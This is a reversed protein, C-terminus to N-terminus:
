MYAVKHPMPPRSIGFSGVWAKRVFRMAHFLHLSKEQARQEGGRVPQGILRRQQQQAGGSVPNTGSAPETGGIADEYRTAILNNALSSRGPPHQGVAVERSPQVNSEDDAQVACGGRIGSVSGNRDALEIVDDGTIQQSYRGNGKFQRGSNGPQLVNIGAQTASRDKGYGPYKRELKARMVDEASLETALHIHNPAVATAMSLM